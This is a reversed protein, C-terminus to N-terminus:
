KPTLPPRAAKEYYIHLKGSTGIKNLQEARTGKAGSLSIIFDNLADFQKAGCLEICGVTAFPGATDSRPDEPGDHVLFNGTVKWAGVESSAASHVKYEPLWMEIAYDQKDALGVVRANSKPKGKDQKVGFRFVEFTKSQAKDADDKGSVTMTYTPIKYWEKANDGGPYAWTYGWSKETGGVVIKIDRIAM